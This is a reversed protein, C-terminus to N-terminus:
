YKNLEEMIFDELKNHNVTYPVEILFVGNEKCLRRKMDDRYCQNYFADKSKHFYPTYKYHQIGNYELAIKLEPNYCDLELNHVNGTIKNRLFDPRAKNFPKKFIDQLIDRCKLEGKSDKGQPKKINNSIRKTSLYFIENWTGKKGIRFLSMILIILISIILLIEFSYKNWCQKVKKYM